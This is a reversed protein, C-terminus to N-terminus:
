AVVREGNLARELGAGARDGIGDFALGLLPDLVRLVGNLELEADYTVRSGPGDPDPVVDIRDISTLFRSRAEVKVHARQMDDPESYETTVYQLTTTGAVAKVDVDFVAEPGGGDGRLQDVSTVGPDWQAFNRLDSMYAFANAASRPTRVTTRYRAM